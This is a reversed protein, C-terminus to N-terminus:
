DWMSWRGQPAYFNPARQEGPRHAYQFRAAAPTQNGAVYDTFTMAEQGPTQRAAQYRSEQTIAHPGNLWNDFETGATFPNSMGQSQYRSQLYPLHNNEQWLKLADADTTATPPAGDVGSAGGAGPVEPTAPQGLKGLARNIHKNSWNPNAKTLQNKNKAKAM